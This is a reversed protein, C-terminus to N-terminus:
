NRKQSLCPERGQRNHDTKIKANKRFPITLKMWASVLSHWALLRLNRVDFVPSKIGLRILLLIMLDKVKVPCGKIRIIKKAELKGSVGACTGILFVPEDPHIVDGEYYGMVLAAKGATQLTGPSRKEATGLTGKISCTCGGYCLNGSDKNIGEYFTLPTDLRSLDQFPSEVGELRYRLERISIDGSVRIDNFDLSGYGREEAEKLHLVQEPDYGLIKAAVMDCALPDNSILVAGLHVPYPSSEFGRGITVADSVILDPYGIELMDVIKQHLRDDHFLFREKHNLIGINLKLTNTIDTVIHFKLKPMWIKFEAEYLSKAVEMTTHCKARSLSVQKVAEENFDVLPVGLRDTEAKIGSEVFFMRSPMGIGGSEGVTIGSINDQGTQDKLVNVMSAIMAPETYSHHIYDKNATVINPKILIRGSPSLGLDDISERIITQIKDIDYSECSRIIVRRDKKDPTM